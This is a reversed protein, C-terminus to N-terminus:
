LDRIGARILESQLEPGSLGPLGMDLILRRVDAIAGSPSPEEASSFVRAAFGLVRLLDPPSERVSCDDDVVAVLARSDM